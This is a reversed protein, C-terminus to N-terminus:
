TWGKLEALTHPDYDVQVTTDVWVHWTMVPGENKFAGHQEYCALLFRPFGLNERQDDTVAFDDIESDGTVLGGAILAGAMQSQFLPWIVYLDNSTGCVPCRVQHATAADLRALIEDASPM